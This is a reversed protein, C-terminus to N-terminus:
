KLKRVKGGQTHVTRLGIHEQGAPRGPLLDGEQRYQEEDCQSAPPADLLILLLLNCRGGDPRVIVTVEGGGM